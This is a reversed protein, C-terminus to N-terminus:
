NHKERNYHNCKASSQDAQHNIGVHEKLDYLICVPYLLGRLSLFLSCLNIQSRVKDFPKAKHAADSVISVHHNM